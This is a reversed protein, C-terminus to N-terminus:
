KLHTYNGQTPLDVLIIGGGWGRNMYELFFVRTFLMDVIFVNIHFIYAFNNSHQELCTYRRMMSRDFNVLPTLQAPIKTEKNRRQM